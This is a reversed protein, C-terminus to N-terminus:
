SLHPVLVGRACPLSLALRTGSSALLVRGGSPPRNRLWCLNRRPASVKDPHRTERQASCSGSQSRTSWLLTLGEGNESNASVWGQVLRRLWWNCCRAAGDARVRLLGGAPPLHAGRRRSICAGFSMATRCPPVRAAGARASVARGAAAHLRGGAARVQARVPLLPVADIYLDLQPSHMPCPHTTHWRRRLALSPTHTASAPPTPAHLSSV